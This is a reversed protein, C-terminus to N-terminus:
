ASAGVILIKYTVTSGAGSNAVRLLDATAATVPWGTTGPATLTVSGGPQVAITHTAAGFPGVFANTAAAGLIVNNTNGEDATIMICKVRAFTVTGGLPGTLSGALDIDTNTSAALTNLDGWVLDAQGTATGSTLTKAYSLNQPTSTAGLDSSGSLLANVGVQITTYLAM